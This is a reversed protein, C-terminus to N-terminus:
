VIKRAIMHYPGPDFGPYKQSTGCVSGWDHSVITTRYRAHWKRQFHAATNTVSYCKEIILHGVYTRSILKHDLM